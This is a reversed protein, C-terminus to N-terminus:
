IDEKSLYRNLDEVWKKVPNNAKQYQIAHVTQINQLNIRQQDSQKCIIEGMRLLTM